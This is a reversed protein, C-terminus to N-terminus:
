EEVQMAERPSVRTAIFAPYLGAALSVFSVVVLAVIVQPPAVSPYLRPGSFLFTMVDNTAPIGVNGLIMLLIVGVTVGILGGLLGIAGAEMMVLGLVFRRRAGIARLAGLESIRGLTAMVLANSTVILAVLLILLIAALLVFGMLAVFQGLIGAAQQGPIAEINLGAQKGAQQVAQLTAGLRSQDAIMVAANLVTGSELLKPDYGGARARTLAARTGQLPVLERAFADDSSDDLTATEAITRTGGFLQEEADNRAVDVVGAAERMAELEKEREPTMFGYLERFTVLDVLNVSGAQPSSALGDFVFTGYVKVDAKRVYGDRAVTKLTLTEGVAVRYLRLHPALDRYFETYRRDFNADSTDFFDRFLQALDSEKSDLLKRLKDRVIPQQEDLQTLIEHVSGVNEKVLQQLVPSTAIRLGHEDHAQKIQDMGRAARLKFQSEHVMKAIMFGRKGAPITTGAVVRMRQFARKFSSPDTGIYRLPIPAADAALPAVENELFPLSTEQDQEFRAWFDDRAARDIAALSRRDTASQSVKSVAQIETRMLDLLRRVRRKSSAYDRQAKTSEPQQKLTSSSERLAELAEDLVNGATATAGSFGMPVVAKVNPVAGLAKRLKAFDDIPALESTSADALLNLKGESDASYVQIHGAISDSVSRQLGVSVSNVLAGGCVIFLGALATLGGVILTKYRNAFVNRVAIEAVIGLKGVLRM